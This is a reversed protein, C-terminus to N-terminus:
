GRDDRRSPISEAAGAPLFNLALFRLATRADSYVYQLESELPNEPALTSATSVVTGWTPAPEIAKLPTTVAPTTAQVVVSGPADPAHRLSLVLAVAAVAAAIGTAALWGFGNRSPAPTAVRSEAVALIVRRELGAPFDKTTARAVDRRLAGDFAAVAAFHQQCVPCGQVHASNAGTADGRLACRLRALRCSLRPRDPSPTNM